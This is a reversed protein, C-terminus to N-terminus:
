SRQGAAFGRPGQVSEANIAAGSERVASAASSAPPALRVHLVPRSGQPHQGEAARSAIVPKAAEIDYLRALERHILRAEVSAAKGALSMAAHHRGSWYAHGM